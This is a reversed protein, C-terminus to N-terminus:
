ALVFFFRANKSKMQIMQHCSFRTSVYINCIYVYLNQDNEFRLLRPFQSKFRKAQYHSLFEVYVYVYIHTFIHIYTYM